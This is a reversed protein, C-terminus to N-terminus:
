IGLPGIRPPREAGALLSDGDPGARGNERRHLRQAHHHDILLVLGAVLIALARPIMGAIHGLDPDAELLRAQQQAAGRWRRLAKRPHPLPEGQDPQRFPDAPPGHRRDFHDVEPV